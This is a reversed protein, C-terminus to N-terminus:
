KQFLWSCVYSFWLFGVVRFTFDVLMFWRFFLLIYYKPWLVTTRKKTTTAESKRNVHDDRLHILTRLIETCDYCCSRFLLLLFLCISFIFFCVRRFRSICMYVCHVRGVAGFHYSVLISRVFFYFLQFFTSVFFYCIYNKHIKKPTNAARPKESLYPLNRTIKELYPM